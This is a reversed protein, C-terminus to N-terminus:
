EVYALYVVYKTGDWEARWGLFTQETVFGAAHGTVAKGATFDNVRDRLTALTADEFIALKFSSLKMVGEPPGGPHEARRPESM